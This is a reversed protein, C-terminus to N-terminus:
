KKCATILTCNWFQHLPPGTHTAVFHKLKQLGTNFKEAPILHYTSVYKTEIKQILSHDIDVRNATSKETSIDVFGAQELASRLIPIDHFRQKDIKVYDPFFEQLKPHYSEIQRHSSTVLVLQGRGLVRFCERLVPLPDPLHHLRYISYVANFINGRFPLRTADANIYQLSDDKSRATQLMGISADVGIVRASTKSGIFGAATGTGCGLDLVTSSSDIKCRQILLELYEPSNSRFSDYDDAIATYDIKM